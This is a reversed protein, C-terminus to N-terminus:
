VTTRFGMAANALAVDGYLIRLERVRGARLSWLEAAPMSVTRGTTLGTLTMMGYAIVRDGEAAITEVDFRISSWWKAALEAMLAAFGARGRHIGGYPLSDVEHIAFEDDLMAIFDDIRGEAFLGYAHRVLARNAQEEGM